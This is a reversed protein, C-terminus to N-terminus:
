EYFVIIITASLLENTVEVLNWEFTRNIKINNYIDPIKNPM